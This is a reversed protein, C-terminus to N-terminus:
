KGFRPSRGLFSRRTRSIQTTACTRGIMGMVGRDMEDRAATLVASDGLVVLAAPLAEYKARAVTGPPAYRLWANQGSDAHLAPVTGGALM